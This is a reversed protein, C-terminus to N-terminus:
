NDLDDFAIIPDSCRSTFDYAPFGVGTQCITILEKRWSIPLFQATKLLLALSPCRAQLRNLLGTLFPVKGMHTANARVRNSVHASTQELERLNRRSLGDLLAVM